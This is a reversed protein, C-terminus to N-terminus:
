AKMDTVLEHFIVIKRADSQHKMRTSMTFAAACHICESSNISEGHRCNSEGGSRQKLSVGGIATGIIIVSVGVSM